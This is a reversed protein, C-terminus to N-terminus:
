NAHPQNFQAFPNADDSMPFILGLAGNIDGIDLYTPEIGDQTIPWPGPSTANLILSPSATRGTTKATNRLREDLFAEPM